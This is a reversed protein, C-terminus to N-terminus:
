ETEEFGAWLAQADKWHIWGTPLMFGWERRRPGSWVLTWVPEDLVLRHLDEARRRVISFRPRYREAIWGPHGLPHRTVEIYGGTLLFSWFDWPHDHLARAEDSRLIHHLRITGLPGLDLIWREMYDGLHDAYPWWRRRRAKSWGLKM